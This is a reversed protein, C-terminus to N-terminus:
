SFFEIIILSWLINHLNFQTKNWWVSFTEFVHKFYHFYQKDLSVTRIYFM